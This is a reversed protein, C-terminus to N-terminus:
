GGGVPNLAWKNLPSPEAASEPKKNCMKACM